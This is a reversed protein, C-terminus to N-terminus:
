GVLALGYASLATGAVGAATATLVYALSAVDGPSDEGDHTLTFVSSAATTIANAEGVLTGTLGTRRWRLTVTTAGVGTQAVVWGVLRVVQDAGDASVSPITVVVVETALTLTVDATVSSSFKRPWPVPM